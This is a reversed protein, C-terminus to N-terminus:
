GGSDLRHVVHLGLGRWLGAGFAAAWLPALGAVTAIEDGSRRARAAVVAAAASTAVIAWPIRRPRAVCALAAGATIPFAAVALPFFRSERRGHGDFFVTGRHASHRIFSGLTGRAAYDCGFAPSIHIPERAAIWRLLPADDNAHRTDAYASTFTEVGARLLSRPAFFCGTGKPYRDFDRVGFSVARPDDFYDRWAIETLVNQFTAYPNGAVDIRVDGTWVRAGDDIAARAHKLSGPRLRVRGDLLLVYEAEARELGNRRAEFRGRNPQELVQLPLKAALAREAVTGSGDSSGDDVVVVDVEFGSGDAEEVLALLTSPLHEAENLVPM